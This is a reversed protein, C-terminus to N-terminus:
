GFPLGAILDRAALRAEIERPLHSRSPPKTRLRVARLGRPNSLGHAQSPINVGKNIGNMYHLLM